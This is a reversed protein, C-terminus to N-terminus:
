KQVGRVHDRREVLYNCFAEASPSLLLETAVNVCAPVGAALARELAKPLDAPREVYEGYGGIAQVMQDYRMRRLSTAVLRDPGYLARQFHQEVGWAADNGVVVVMPLQHRIATDFEMFHFGLSGDGVFVIVPSNPRALKAAIGIPVGTGIMGLRGHSLTHGPKRAKVLLRVWAAFDAGDLMVSTDETIISCVERAVRLPHLPSQDSKSLTDFQEQQKKRAERLETVWPREPWNQGKVEAALQEAVAGCDATVGVRVPRNRGIEMANAHVQIIQAEPGFAGGFGLRFDLKEGLVLVVDADHLRRSLPNAAPVGAGFCFPHDDSVIGRAWEVTFLPIKTQEIFGRLGDGAKNWWAGIGAVIAPRAAGRLLDLTERIAAPEAMTRATPRRQAPNYPSVRSEEVEQDFADIPVTLHVPGPHGSRAIRFAMALMEPIRHVSPVMAAWKTIQQTMEVQPIEQIAGRGWNETEACGSILVVPTDEAFMTTLGGIANAHGPGETVLCVGPEGTVRATGGAMFVGASEHRVDVIRLGETLCADFIPFIGVGALGFVYSVGEAKLGKVLLQAGNVKAMAYRRPKDQEWDKRKQALTLFSKVTKIRYLRTCTPHTKRVVRTCLTRGVFKLKL